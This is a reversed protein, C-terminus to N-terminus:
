PLKERKRAEVATAAIRTAETQKLGLAVLVTAIIDAAFDWPNKLRHEGDDALRAFTAMAAGIIFVVAVHVSPAVFRKTKLGLAVDSKIGANIPADPDVVNPQLRLMARIRIPHTAAFAMISALGNAMREAADTVGENTRTIREELEFRLREAVAAAIDTKDAFHTYFTGKAVDAAETIDDISIADIGRAAVLQEAAAVLDGRTRERKRTQRPLTESM